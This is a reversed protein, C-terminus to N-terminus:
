AEDEALLRRLSPKDIKGSPTRPLEGDRVVIRDPRMFRPLSEECFREVAEPTLPTGPARVVVLALDEDGLGSDVPVAAVEQVEALGSLTVEIQWASVNEGRRRIIEKARGIFWFDGAEDVHVLDGTHFWLGAFAKLTEAPQEFYGDFLVGPRLPRAVLEGVEGIECGTGDQRHVEVHWERGPKGLLGTVPERDPDPPIIMAETLGYLASVIRLRFREEFERAFPPAPAIHALRVKSQAEWEDPPRRMLISAMPGIASSTTAGSEVIDQWYRSASFREGFAFRAGSIVAALFSAFLGHVHNLPLCTYIRDDPRYGMHRAFVWGYYVCTRNSLVCGKSPGTSGSTFLILAPDTPAIDRDVPDVPGDAIESLDGGVIRGADLRGRTAETAAGILDGDALLLAADARDVQALLHQGRLEPNLPVAVIGECWLALMAVLMDHSSRMLLCVREGKGAVSALKARARNVSRDVAEIDIKPGELGRYWLFGGSTNTEVRRRWVARLTRDKAPIDIDFDIM